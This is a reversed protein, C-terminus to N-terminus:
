VKVFLKEKSRRVKKADVMPDKENDRFGLALLATSGLKQAEFGFIEDIKDPIFGEMPTTDIKAEAAAIMASGLAIYAQKSAWQFQAETSMGEFNKKLRDAYDSLANPTLNREDTVQQFYADIREKTIETWAAFILLHSSELIQPQNYANPAIKRKLQEDEVVIVSFPQLGNSTATLQISKLIGNLQDEKIKDGTMRKTAYRWELSEITTNM